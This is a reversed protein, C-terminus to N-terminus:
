SSGVGRHEALRNGVVANHFLEATPAHSDNVLRFVELEATKDGELKKGIIDGFVLLREAAKLALRLGGRGQVMGVDAGNVFDIFFVALGEDGHFEEVSLGEFMADHAQGSSVSVM